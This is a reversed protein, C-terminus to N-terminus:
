TSSVSAKHIVLSGRRKTKYNSKKKIGEYDLQM